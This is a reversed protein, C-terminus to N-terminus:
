CSKLGGLSLKFHPREWCGSTCLPQTSHPSAAGGCLRGTALPSYGCSHLFSGLDLNATSATRVWRPGLGQLEASGGQWGQVPCCEGLPRMHCCGSPSSGTQDPIAARSCLCGEFGRQLLQLGGWVSHIPSIDSSLLAQPM